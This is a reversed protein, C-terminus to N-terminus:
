DYRDPSVTAGAIKGKPTDLEVFTGNPLDALAGAVYEYFGLADRYGIWVTEETIRGGLVVPKKPFIKKGVSARYDSFLKPFMRSACQWRWGDQLADLGTFEVVALTHADRVQIVGGNYTLRNGFIDEGLLLEDSEAPLRKGCMVEVAVPSTFLTGTLPDIQVGDVEQIRSALNNM